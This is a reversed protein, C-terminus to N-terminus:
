LRRASRNSPRTPRDSRGLPLRSVHAVPMKTPSPTPVVPHRAHPNPVPACRNKLKQARTMKKRAASYRRIMSPLM